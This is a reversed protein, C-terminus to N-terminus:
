RWRRIKWLRFFSRRALKKSFRVAEASTLDTELGNRKFRLVTGLVKKEAIFRASSNADGKECLFRSTGWRFSFLVRHSFFRGERFFVAIEGRRPTRRQPDIYLEDGPLLAPAMSGSLLPLWLAEKGELLIGM